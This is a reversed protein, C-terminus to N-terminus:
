VSTKKYLKQIDKRYTTKFSKVMADLGKTKGAPIGSVDVDCNERNNRNNILAAERLALAFNVAKSKSNLNIPIPKSNGETKFETDEGKSYRVGSIKHRGDELKNIEDAAEIPNIRGAEYSDIIDFVNRLYTNIGSDYTREHVFLALGGIVFAIGVISGATRNIDNFISYGTIGSFSNLILLMGCVVLFASLVYAFGKKM